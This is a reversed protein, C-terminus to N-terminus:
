FLGISIRVKSTTIKEVEIAYDLIPTSPFNKQAYEKLIVVRMDPNNIQLLLYYLICILGTLALLFLLKDIHSFNHTGQCNFVVVKTQGTLSM